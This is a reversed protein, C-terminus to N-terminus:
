WGGSVSELALENALSEDPLAVTGPNAAGHETTSRILGFCVFLLVPTMLIAPVIGTPRIPAVLRGIQRANIWTVTTVFILALAIPLKYTAWLTAGVERPHGLYEFFLMNPRTDFQDVFSPTCCEMFIVILLVVPLIVKLLARWAPVLFRNSALLPFLLVPIALILGLLVLDFRLGQLLVSGLMDADMVRQWQWAVFIFRSVTLTLLMRWGISVLPRLSTAVETSSLLIRKM